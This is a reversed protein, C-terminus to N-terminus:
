HKGYQPTAVMVTRGDATAAASGMPPVGGGSVANASAVAPQNTTGTAFATSSIGGPGMPVTAVQLGPAGNLVPQAAVITSGSTAPMQGAAPMQNQQPPVMLIQTGGAMPMPTSGATLIAQGNAGSPAITYTQAVAKGQSNVRNQVAVVQPSSSVPFPLSLRPFACTAVAAETLERLLRTCLIPSACACCAGQM